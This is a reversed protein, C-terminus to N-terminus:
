EGDISVGFAGLVLDIRNAVALKGSRNGAFLLGVPNSGPDTVLLSGSDGAKIFPKGSEVIIQDEFKATGSSYGVNLIANVATITGKTLQTTRGYKQVNLGVEASVPSPQPTGYGNLPTAKDVAPDSAGDGDINAVAADITNHASTSFVIPEFASLYGIIDNPDYACNTDYRGPQLVKSGLEAQNELAYVHNNSLAYKLGSNDYVRAGITGASCEDVNGTSVGIPVPRPCVETTSCDSGGEIGSGGGGPGGSHGPRHHLAFIKGTVQVEVTVGDLTRPLGAVGPHETLIKIVPGGEALGVATGVVGQIRLLADTHAEQAAMAHALGPPAFPPDAYAPSVVLGALLGVTVLTGIFLRTYRM